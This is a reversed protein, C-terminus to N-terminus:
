LIVNLLKFVDAVLFLSGTVLTPLKLKEAELLAHDISDCAIVNIGPTDALKALKESTYSSPESMVQVCFVKSVLNKFPMLFDHVNRNKTMGLIISFNSLNEKAWESLVLVGSSNHAGDAWIENKYKTTTIKQIRGPWKTNTLSKNVTNLSINFIDNNILHSEKNNSNLAALGAIVTAANMIQHNGELNPFNFTFDDCGIGLINFGNIKKTIGFDYGFAISRAELEDCKSFLVDFVEEAQNSIACPTKHKIIGAKESAIIDITPGLYEMHDYSIDTIITLIPNPVINTCDLRGGMGTELILVDAPTESFALFAAATVGEFFRLDINAKSTAIRAHECIEFLYSDSIKESRLVIRENFELLHPSTYCHVKYGAYEFIARLYAASSGKGNTGAIHIVPPLSLHPSYLFDLVRLINQLNYEAKHWIPVPWHPMSVM